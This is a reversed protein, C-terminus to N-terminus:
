PVISDTTSSRTPPCLTQMRLVIILLPVEQGLEHARRLAPCRSQARVIRVVRQTAYASVALVPRLHVLKTLHFPVFLLQRMSSCKSVLLTTLVYVHVIMSVQVLVVCMLMPIIIIRM